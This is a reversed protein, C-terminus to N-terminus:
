EYIVGDVRGSLSAGSRNSAEDLHLVGGVVGRFEPEDEPPSSELYYAGNFVVDLDVSGPQLQEADIEVYLHQLTSADASLDFLALTARGEQESPGAMAAGALSTPFPAADLGGEWSSTGTQFPDDGLTDWRTAFRVDVTGIEGLCPNERLTLELDYGGQSLAEEFLTRRTDITWRLGNVADQFGAPDLVVPSLQEEWHDIRAQLQAEDWVEDFLRQLEGIYAARGWDTAYLRAPLTAQVPLPASESWGDFFTGDTGWPIFRLLDDTPDRYVFFNNTNGAYGDWHGVLTEAAWFRIFHDLDLVESLADRLEEDEVLLADALARLPARTPDTDDTKSEFTGLWGDRVDSLTGEYLDGDNDGFSRELFDKKVAEVHTYVGLPHHNVTVDAFNCRPAPLGADVFVSYSLCTRMRAPDSLNNNLTFREDGEVRLDDINRDFKIKLSPRTTSLSGIFGKKRIGVQPVYRGDITVDSSFWTFPSPQPEALCDGTIIDLFTRTQSALTAADDPAIDIHVELREDGFLPPPDHEWDAPPACGMLAMALLLRM